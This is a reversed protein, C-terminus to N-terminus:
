AIRGEAMHLPKAIRAQIADIDVELIYVKHTVGDTTRFRMPGVYNQKQEPAPIGDVICGREISFLSLALDPNRGVLRWFKPNGLFYVAGQWILLAVVVAGIIQWWEM